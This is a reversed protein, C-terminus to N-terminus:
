FLATGSGSTFHQFARDRSLNGRGLIEVQGEPDPGVVEGIQVTGPCSRILDTAIPDPLSLLLEFDEGGYLAWDLAQEPFGQCLSTAMPIQEPDVVARVQSAQAIQILADALGDSTDMGGCRPPDLRQLIQVVDLRPRPYQHARILEAEGAPDLGLTHEPHLLLQLGGRSSGHPGTVVLHDGPQALRRRIARDPAVYGFATISVFRCSSRCTDGGVLATGYTHCCRQIGGYLHKVWEVPTQGPLGLGIVVAGPLAGMAALDSLNAATARWGVSDAPTTRDSFHVMDVLVDTTIVLDGPQPKLIAGDDGILNPDAYGQLIQLLGAEQIQNLTLPSHADTNM